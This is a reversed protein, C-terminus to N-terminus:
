LHNSGPGRQQAMVLKALKAWEKKDRKKPIRHHQGANQMEKGCMSCCPPSYRWGRKSTRCSICVFNDNSIVM